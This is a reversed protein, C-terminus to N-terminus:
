ENIIEILARELLLFVGTSSAFDHVHAFLINRFHAFFAKTVTARLRLGLFTGDDAQCIDDLAGRTAQLFRGQLFDFLKDILEDFLADRISLQVLAIERQAFQFDDGFPEAEGEHGHQVAADGIGLLLRPRKARAFFTQM